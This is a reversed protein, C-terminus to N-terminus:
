QGSAPTGANRMENVVRQVEDFLDAPVIQGRIKAYSREAERIWEAEIEPTAQNVILGRKKMAAIAADAASHNEAQMRRGSERAIGALTAQTSPDLQNWRKESIVLAGVLPAWKLDLMHGVPKPTVQMANAVVPPLFVTDIMGSMLSSSIDVTELVVPHYGASKYIEVVDADGAWAFIKAKKLDAPHVIPSKSFAHVWGADAWFLVVFGKERFRSELRPQLRRGVEDVEDYSRFMMPISQLAQVSRDIESLGVATMLSADMVGSRIERVMQAEGGATGGPYVTVKLTGASSREWETAMDGLIKEYTSGRPAITGVKILTRPSTKAKAPKAAVRPAVALFLAAPLMVYVSARRMNM